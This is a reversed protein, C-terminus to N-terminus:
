AREFGFAVAEIGDDDTGAVFTTLRVRMGLEIKEPDPDINVLNAKVVGGGDLGVVASVFPTPIGPAGRHVITYTRLVGENNLRKRQFEDKFCRACANRRDFYVSGCNVCVNGELHEDGKDLILYDVAAIRKATM